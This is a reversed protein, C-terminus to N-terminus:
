IIEKIIDFDNNIFMDVFENFKIYRDELSMTKNVINETYCKLSIKITGQLIEQQKTKKNYKTHCDCNNVYYITIDNNNIFKFYYKSNFLLKSLKWILQINTKEIYSYYNKNAKCKEIFVIYELINEYKLNKKINEINM